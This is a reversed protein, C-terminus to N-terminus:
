SYTFLNTRTLEENAGEFKKEQYGEANYARVVRIGTLNERAVRNLNDTLKQMNKFKPLVLAMVTGLM